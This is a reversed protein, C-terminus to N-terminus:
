IISTELPNRKTLSHTHNREDQTETPYPNSRTSLSRALCPVQIPYGAEATIEDDEIKLENVIVMKTPVTEVGGMRKGSM